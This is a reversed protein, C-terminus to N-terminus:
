AMLSSRPYRFLILLYMHYHYKNYIRVDFLMRATEWDENNACIYYKLAQVLLWVDLGM